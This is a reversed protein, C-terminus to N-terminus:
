TNLQVNYLGTSKIHYRTWKQYRSILSMNESLAEYSLWMNGPWIVLKFVRTTVILGIPSMVYKLYLVKLFPKALAIYSTVEKNQTAPNSSTTIHQYLGNSIRWKLFQILSKNENQAYYRSLFLVREIKTSRTRTLCVSVCVHVCVCLHM